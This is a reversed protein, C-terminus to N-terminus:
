ETVTDSTPATFGTATVTGSLTINANNNNGNEKVSFTNGAPGSTINLTLTATFTGTATASLSWHSTSSLGLNVVLPNQRTFANGYADNPVDVTFNKTQNLTFTVTGSPNFALTVGASDVSGSLTGTYTTSAHDTATLSRAGAKFLTLSVTAVGNTFSASTPLSDPFAPSTGITQGGTWDLTKTGTYSTDTASNAKATITVNFAAGATPNGTPGTLAYSHTVVVSAVTVTGSNAASKKTWSKYTATVSYAYKGDVPVTDSCTLGTQSTGGCAATGADPNGQADIAYRTVNYGTAAVDTVSTKSQTWTVTITKSSSSGTSPATLTPASLTEVAGSVSTPQKVHSWTAFAATSTLGALVTAAVIVPRRTM